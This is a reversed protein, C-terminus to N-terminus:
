FTKLKLNHNQAKRKLNKDIYRYSIKNVRYEIRLVCYSNSDVLKDIGLFKL